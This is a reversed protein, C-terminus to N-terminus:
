RHCHTPDPTMAEAYEMVDRELSTFVDSERWRPVERAKNVDLGQNHAQFDGFDLCFSCGVLERCPSVSWTSHSVLGSIQATAPILMPLMEATLGPELGDGHRDNDGV